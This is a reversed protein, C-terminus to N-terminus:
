LRLYGYSGDPYIDYARQPVSGRGPGPITWADLRAHSERAHEICGQLTGTFLVASDSASGSARLNYQLDTM